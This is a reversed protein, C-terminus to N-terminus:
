GYNFVTIFSTIISDETVKVLLFGLACYQIKIEWRWTFSIFWLRQVVGKRIYCVQKLIGIGYVEKLIYCNKNRPYKAFIKFINQKMNKTFLAMLYYAFLVTKNIQIYKSFDIVRTSFLLEIYSVSLWSKINGGKIITQSPCM